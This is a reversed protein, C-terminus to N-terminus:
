YSYVDYQLITGMIFCKIVEKMRNTAMAHIIIVVNDQELSSSDDEDLSQMDTRISITSSPRALAIAILEM